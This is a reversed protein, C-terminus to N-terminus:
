ELHPVRTWTNTFYASLDEGDRWAIEFVEAFSHRSQRTLTLRARIGRGNEIRESVCVLKVAEADCAYELTFGEINFTRLVLTNRDGDVSFMGIEEHNDGDPSKEQPLRVSSHKMLLFRGGLVFDYHRKGIGTGLKGDVSGDWRGALFRLPELPDTSTSEEAVAPLAVGICVLVPLSRRRLSRLTGM